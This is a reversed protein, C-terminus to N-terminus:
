IENPIITNEIWQMAEEEREEDAAMEAYAKEIEEDTKDSLASNLRQMLISYIEKLIHDEQQDIIRFLQLKLEAASM